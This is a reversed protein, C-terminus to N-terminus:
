IGLRDLVRYLYTATSLFWASRGSYYFRGNHPIQSFVSPPDEGLIMGALEHGLQLSLAVGHGAYGTAYWAGDIRGIHPMLDFPTGIRGGWAHTIEADSLDPWFEVMSERLQTATEKPDLGPHLSHRGGFLIRDDHTRRMYNLLRKRTHAVVGSPFIAAVGEAGLPETAIVYSGVPVILRALEKSPQRTTYGNTAILVDGARIDGRTTHVVFGANLRTMDTAQCRDVLRAGADAVQKALGFALRAPHVGFGEPKFMAVRFHEGGVISGIERADVVRWDVAYKKRYWEVTRDLQKLDRSSRGLEAMGGEDVIADIEPTGALERVLEVSRVSSMWMDYAVRPGYYALVTQMGAKVDTSVMGGNISSAGGAIEGADIVTVSASSPLLRRGASLGTYGSGVILFDTEEPLDSTIGSPRPYDDVWFPTTKM